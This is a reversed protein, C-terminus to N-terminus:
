IDTKGPNAILWLGAPNAVRLAALAVTAILWLGAFILFAIKEWGV